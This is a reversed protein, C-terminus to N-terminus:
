EKDSTLINHYLKGIALLEPTPYSGNTTFEVDHETLREMNNHSWFCDRCAMHECGVEVTGFDTSEGVSRWCESSDPVPPLLTLSGDFMLDALPMTITYKDM